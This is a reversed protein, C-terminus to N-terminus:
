LEASLIQLALFVLFCYHVYYFMCLTNVVMSYILSLLVKYPDMNLPVLCLFMRLFTMYFYCLAFEVFYQVVYFLVFWSRGGNKEVSIWSRNKYQFWISIIRLCRCRLMPYLFVSVKCNAGVLWLFCQYIASWQLFCLHLLCMGIFVVRHFCSQPAAGDGETVLCDWPFSM